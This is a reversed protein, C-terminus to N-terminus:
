SSRPVAARAADFVPQIASPMGGASGAQVPLSLSLKADGPICEKECVLWSVAAELTDSTRAGLDRPPTIQTLLTTEGDYGFNVLHSVPIRTPTPWVIPGATYGEPLTWKVD